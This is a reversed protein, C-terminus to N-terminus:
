IDAEFDRVIVELVAIPLDPFEQHLRFYRDKPSPDTNARWALYIRERMCYDPLSVRGPARQVGLERRRQLTRKCRMKFLASMLSTSAGHRIFYTELAQAEHMRVVARVGAKLAECDVAVSIDLSRMSALRGLDPTTLKRLHTLLAGGIGAAALEETQRDTLQTTLHNLLVLRVQPDHLSLM